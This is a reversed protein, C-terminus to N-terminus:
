SNRRRLRSGLLGLGAVMMAYTEPEPVPNSFSLDDVAGGSNYPLGLIEVRHVGAGAYSVTVGGFVPGSTTIFEQVSLAGGALDRFTVRFKEPAADGDGVRLSVSQWVTPTTTGPLVFDFNLQDTAVGYVLAQSGSGGFNYVGMDGAAVNLVTGPACCHTSNTASVLVGSGKLQDTIQVGRTLSEFDLTTAGAQGMALFVAGGVALSSIKM